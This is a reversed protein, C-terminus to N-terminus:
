LGERSPGSPRLGAEHRHPRPQHATDPREAVPVARLRGRGHRAGRRFGRLYHRCGRSRRRVKPHHPWPLGPRHPGARPRGGGADRARGERDGRRDDRRRRGRRLRARTKSAPQRHAPHRPQPDLAAPSRRRDDPDEPHGLEQGSDEEPGRARLLRPPRQLRVQRAPAEDDLRHADYRGRAYLAACGDPDHPGLPGPGARHGDRLGGDRPLPGRRDAQQPPPDRRYVPLRGGRLLHPHGGHGGGAGPQAREHRLYGREDRGGPHPVALDERTGAAGRAAHPGPARGAEEGGRRLDELEGQAGRARYVRGPLPAAVNARRGGRGGGPGPAAGHEGGGNHRRAARGYRSAPERWTSYLRGDGGYRRELGRGTRLGSARERRSERHE